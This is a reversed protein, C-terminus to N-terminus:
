KNNRLKKVLELVGICSEVAVEDSIKEKARQEFRAELRRLISQSVGLRDLTSDLGDDDELQDFKLSKQQKKLAAATPATQSKTRSAAARSKVPAHPPPRPKVPSIEEDEVGEDGVGGTVDESWKVLSSNKKQRKAASVAKKQNVAAASRGSSTALPEGVEEALDVLEEAEVAAVAEALRKRHEAATAAATAPDQRGAKKVVKKGGRKTPDHNEKDSERVGSRDEDDEDEGYEEDITSLHPHSSSKNFTPNVPMTKRTANTSVTAAAPGEEGEESSSGESDGERLLSLNM